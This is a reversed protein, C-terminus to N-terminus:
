PNTSMPKSDKTGGVYKLRADWLEVAEHSGFVLSGPQRVLDKVGPLLSLASIDGQWKLTQQGDLNVQIQAIVGTIQTQVSLTYPRDNEILGPKFRIFDGAAEPASIKELYHTRGRYGSLNLQIFTDKVPIILWLTDEGSIRKFHTTFEMDGQIGSALQVSAMRQKAIIALKSDNLIWAGGIVAKKIDLSALPDTWGDPSTSPKSVSSKLPETKMATKNAGTISRFKVQSFAIKKNSVVCVSSKSQVEWINQLALAKRDGKWRFLPKGDLAAAIDVQDGSLLTRVELLYDRNNELKGPSPFKPNNKLEFGDVLELGHHMGNYASLACLIQGGGIPLIVGLTDDSELRRFRVALDYSGSVKDLLEIRAASQTAPLILNTGKLEWSGRHFKSQVDLQALLDIWQGAPLVSETAAPKQVQSAAPPVAKAPVIQSVADLMRLRVSSFTAAIGDRVTFGPSDIAPKEWENPAKLQSCKGAWRFLAAGDLDIEVAGQDRAVVVKARVAHSQGNKFGPAPVRIEGLSTSNNGVSALRHAKVQSSGLVVAVKGTGVPLLVTLAHPGQDRTMTVEMEYSQRTLLPIMLSGRAPSKAVKLGSADKSWRGSVAHKSPDIMALLDIWKGAELKADVTSPPTENEVNLTVNLKGLGSEVDKLALEAKKRLLEPQNELALFIQYYRRSRQLMAIRSILDPDEALLRYWDALMELQSANLDQSDGAATAVREILAADGSKQAYPLAIVPLDLAVVYRRALDTAISRDDPAAALKDKLNQIETQLRMQRSDDAVRGKLMEIRPSQIAGAINVARRYLALSEAYLGRSSKSQALTQITEILQEGIVSADGAHATNYLRQQLTLIRDLLEENRDVAYPLMKMTAVIAAPYGSPDKKGLQYAAECVRMLLAPQDAIEAANALLEEALAVDDATTKSETAKQIKRGYLSEFVAADDTSQGIALGSYLVIWYLASSYALRKMHIDGIATIFRVTNYGM